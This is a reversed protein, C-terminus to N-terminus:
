PEGADMLIPALVDYPPTGGDERYRDFAKALVQAAYARAKPPDGENLAPYLMVGLTAFKPEPHELPLILM